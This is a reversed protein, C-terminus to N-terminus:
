ALWVEGPLARRKGNGQRALNAYVASAARQHAQVPSSSLLGFRARERLWVGGLPSTFGGGTAPLDARIAGTLRLAYGTTDLGIEPNIRLLRRDAQVDWQGALSDWRDLPTGTQTDRVDVAVVSVFEPPITYESQNQASALAVSTSVVITPQCEDWAVRLEELLREFAFGQGLVNTLLYFRGTADAGAGIARNLTFTGSSPTFLTVRGRRWDAYNALTAPDIVVIESGRLDYNSSATIWYDDVVTTATMSTSPRVSGGLGRCLSVLLDRMTWAGPVITGVRFPFRRASMDGLTGATVELRYLGPMALVAKDLTLGYVGPGAYLNTVPGGSAVPTTDSLPGYVAWTVSAAADLSPNGTDPALAPFTVFGDQGLALDV